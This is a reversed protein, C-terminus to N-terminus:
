GARIVCGGGEAGGMLVAIYYVEGRSFVILEPIVEASSCCPLFIRIDREDEGEATNMSKM